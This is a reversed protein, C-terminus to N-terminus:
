FLHAHKDLFAPLKKRLKDIMYGQMSFATTIAFDPMPGKFDIEIILTAHTKNPDNADPALVWGGIPTTARTVGRRIPVVDDKEHNSKGVHM